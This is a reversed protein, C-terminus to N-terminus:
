KETAAEVDTEGAQVRLLCEQLVRGVVGKARAAVAVAKRLDDDQLASKLEFHLADWDLRNERLFMLREVVLVVSAVAVALLPYMFLGGKLFMEALFQLSEM